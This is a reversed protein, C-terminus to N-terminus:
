KGSSRFYSLLARCGPDLGAIAESARMAEMLKEDTPDCIVADLDHSVAMSLFTRNLLRRLPLGFSINSLGGIRHSGPFSQKLMRLTDLAVSLGKKETAVPSFVPDFFIREAPIKEGAAAEIAKEALKLRGDAAPPIGSADKLLVIVASGASSVAPLVRGLPEDDCTISNVICDGGFFRSGEILVEQDPSDVSIKAGLRKRIEKGTSVLTELEREMLLSTNLDIYEAGAAVQADAIDLLAKMDGSELLSRIKRNSSNLREGIIITKM